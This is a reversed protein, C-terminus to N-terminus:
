VVVRRVPVVGFQGDRGSRYVGGSSYVNWSYTTSDYQSSSWVYTNPWTMGLLSRNEYIYYLENVNPLFYDNCGDHVLNNCYHAPNDNPDTYADDGSQTCLRQTNYLGTRTDTWTNSTSCALGLSDTNVNYYGYKKDTFVSSSPVVIYGTQGDAFTYPGIATGGAVAVGHGIFQDAMTIHISSGAKSWGLTQGEQYGRLYLSQSTVLGDAETIEVSNETSTPSCLINLFESDTAVDVRSGIQTDTLGYPDFTSLEVTMPAMVGVENDSPSVITPPLVRYVDDCNYTVSDVATGDGSIGTIKITGVTAITMYSGVIIDSSVASDFHGSTYATDVTFQSINGKDDVIEFDSPIVIKSDNEEDFSCDGTYIKIVDGSMRSQQVPTYAWNTGGDRSIEFFLEINTNTETSRFFTHITSPSVELTESMAQITGETLTYMGTTADYTSNISVATDIHSEDEFEDVYGNPMNLKVQDDEVLQKMVLWTIIDDKTSSNDDITPIVDESLKGNAGVVPVQGATIGVDKAAASNAGVIDNLLHTHVKPSKDALAVNMMNVTALDSLTFDTLTFGDGQSNVVLLKNADVANINPFNNKFTEVDGATTADFFVPLHVFLTNGDGLKFQQTDTSYVLLGQPIVVDVLNWEDSTGNNMQMLANIEKLM